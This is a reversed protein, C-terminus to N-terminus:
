DRAGETCVKLRGRRSRTWVSQNQFPSLRWVMLAGFSEETLPIFSICRGDIVVGGVNKLERLPSTCYMSIQFILLRVEM